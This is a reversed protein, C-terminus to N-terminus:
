RVLDLQVLAPPALHRYFATAAAAVATPFDVERRACEERHRLVVALDVPRFDVVTGHPTPGHLPPEPPSHTGNQEKGQRRCIYM